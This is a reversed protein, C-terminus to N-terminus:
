YFLSGRGEKKVDKAWLSSTLLFPFRARREERRQGVSQVDICLRGRTAPPTAPLVSLGCGASMVVWCAGRQKGTQETHCRCAKFFFCCCFMCAFVCARACVCVCARARAFVCVCARARACARTACWLYLIHNLPNVQNTLTSVSKPM